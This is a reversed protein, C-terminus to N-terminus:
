LIKAYSATKENIVDSKLEDLIETLRITFDATLRKAGFNRNTEILHPEGILVFIEPKFEGAFELRFALPVTLCNGVREVIRAAGGFLRLPRSDNPVIEGQPFIWVCRRSDAALLDAAYGISELVRRSNKPVSFAGIRRFLFFRRLTAEDMMVYSDLRAARSIEFALLGDWWSSHNAYILLPVTADKNALYELGSIQFSNFRRKLLNRNYVAFIEEFWKSKKAALM